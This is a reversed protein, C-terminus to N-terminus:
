VGLKKPNLAQNVITVMREMDFPKEIFELVGLTKAQSRVRENGFASIMITTPFIDINNVEELIQLGTTGRLQYDLIILDYRTSKIYQLATEGDCATSVLYGEERLLDSLIECMDKDDDVVLINM